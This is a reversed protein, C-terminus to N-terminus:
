VDGPSPPLYRSLVGAESRLREAVDDRGLREYEQAAVTRERVEKEVISRVDAETLHLREVETAGVGAASGNDVPHDLPVAEANDIAALASRLATLAVRDKEKLATKLGDHLSARM